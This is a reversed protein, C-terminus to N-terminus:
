GLVGVSRRMTTISGQGEKADEDMLGLLKGRLYKFKAGTTEKTLM